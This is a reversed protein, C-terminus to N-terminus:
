RVINLVLNSRFLFLFHSKTPEALGQPLYPLCIRCEFRNNFGFDTFQIIYQLNDPQLM